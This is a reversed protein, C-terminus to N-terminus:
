ITINWKISFYNEVDAFIASKDQPYILIEGIDGDLFNGSGGSDSGVTLGNLGNTRADGSAVQTGDQRLVSSTGNPLGSVITPSGVSGGTISDGAFLGINNSADSSLAFTDGSERFLIRSLTSDAAADFVIFVTFPQTITSFAVDLFDDVGDFRVSPNGNIGSAVYTPAAGATLDFGNGTEDTWTTVSNGDSLPLETADYRAHLDQEDPIDPIADGEFFVRGDGTRVEQVGPIELPTGDGKRIPAM